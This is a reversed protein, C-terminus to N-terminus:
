DVVWGALVVEEVTDFVEKPLALFEAVSDPVLFLNCLFVTASYGTRGDTGRFDFLLGCEDDRGPRRRVLPLFPWAPWRTPDAMVLLDRRTARRRAEAESMPM